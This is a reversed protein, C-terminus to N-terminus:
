ASVPSLQSIDFVKDPWGRVFEAEHSVLVVTGDYRMLAEKLASKIDVDLHTTPEDLILLNTKEAALCCLKVKTQEGGSLTALSQQAKRGSVGFRALQQRAMKDNLTANAARVVQVPTSDPYPWYLDQAFYGWKIGKATEVQGSLADVEGILTKLLTSKGLGNFGVIAIKEGRQIDLNVPPLLPRQYGIKLGRAAIVRQANLPAAAFHFEPTPKEEPKALRDIKALQKKRGNAITANVGAGNKSIYAELKEIQRQQAEFQKVLHQQEQAKQAMAKAYHGKYKKIQQHDIDCICNAIRDLFATDHSVVMFAGPYQELFGGLWEVHDTDLYNTPEDLLLVDPQQLLLKALMVKHRQGGSLAGMRTDLGFRDIGLGTAIQIVRHDLSYFQEKELLSQLAAARNLLATSTDTAMQEYLVMLTQEAEFLEAFASALYDQISLTKNVTGHQDLYGMVLNPQWHIEGQDPLYEGQLLKLLTSKGVGNHGTVGIHEGAHLAFNADQYLVKDAVQYTLNQIMLLSM